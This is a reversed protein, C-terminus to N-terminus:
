SVSLTQKLSGSRLDDNGFIARVEVRYPGAPLDDPTRFIIQSTTVLSIEDARREIGAANVNGNAALFFVGQQPDALDFTLNYGELRATHTPSLMNNAAGNYMNTYSNVEPKPPTARQKELTTQIQLLKQFDSNPRVLIVVEHRNPDFYDDAGDFNGKISLSFNVLDTNVRKGDLLMRMIAQKFDEFFAYMDATTLTSHHYSMTEILGKLGVTEDPVMVARYQNAGNKLANPYTKYKVKSM